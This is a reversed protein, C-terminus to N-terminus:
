HHAHRDILPQSSFKHLVIKDRSLDFFVSSMVTHDGVMWNEHNHSNLSVAIQNVGDVLWDKPIHMDNGYLRRVKSGNVFVHAHGQLVGDETESEVDVAKDPANLRYYEVAVHINVGDTRDKFVSVEIKPIPINASIMRSKHQHIETTALMINVQFTLVVM